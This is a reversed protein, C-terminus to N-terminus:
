LGCHHSFWYCVTSINSSFLLLLTNAGAIVDATNVIWQGRCAASIPCAKLQRIPRIWLFNNNWCYNFCKLLTQPSVWSLLPLPLLSNMACRNTIWASVCCVSACWREDAVTQEGRTENINVHAYLCVYLVQLVNGWEWLESKQAWFLNCIIKVSM